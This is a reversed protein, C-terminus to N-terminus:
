QFLLKTVIEVIKKDDIYQELYNKSLNNHVCGDEIIDVVNLKKILKYTSNNKFRSYRKNLEKRYKVAVRMCKNLNKNEYIKENSVYVSYKASYFNYEIFVEKNSIDNIYSYFRIKNKEKTSLKKSLEDMSNSERIKKIIKETNVRKKICKPPTPINKISNITINQEAKQKNKQESTKNNSKKIDKIKEIDSVRKVCSSAKNNAYIVFHEYGKDKSIVYINNNNELLLIDLIKRAICMDMCDKKHQYCSIDIFTIFNPINKFINIIKKCLNNKYDEGNVFYIVETNKQSATPIPTGINECDVLVINKM